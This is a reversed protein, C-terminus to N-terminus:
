TTTARAPSKRGASSQRIVKVAEPKSLEGSVAAGGENGIKSRVKAQIEATLQAGHEGRVYALIMRHFLEAWFDKGMKQMNADIKAAMEASLKLRRKM